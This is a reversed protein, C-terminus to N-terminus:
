TTIINNLIVEELEFSSRAAENDRIAKEGYKMLPFACMSSLEKAMTARHSLEKGRTTIDVEYYKAMTDGIGAWLYKSPAKSLVDSDMFIHVPPKTLHFLAEFDGHETYVISLPTTAACTAAITPVTIVPLGVQEAAGKATDLAKGGGVGIILDFEQAKVRNCIAEMNIKTCEGGYWFFDIEYIGSERLSSQIKDKTKDFATKGGVIMVKNGYQKVINGLDRLANEGITYGPFRITINNM